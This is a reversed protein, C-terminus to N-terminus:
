VHVMGDAKILDMLYKEWAMLAARKEVARQSHDYVRDMGPKAHALLADRVDSAVRLDSISQERMGLWSHIADIIM